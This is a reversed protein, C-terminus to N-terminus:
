PRHAQPAYARARDQRVREQIAAISTAAICVKCVIMTQKVAYNMQGPYLTMPSIDVDECPMCTNCATRGHCTNMFECVIDCGTCTNKLAFETTCADCRTTGKWGRCKACTRSCGICGHRRLAGTHFACSPCGDGGDAPLHPCEVFASHVQPGKCVVPPESWCTTCLMTGCSASVFGNPAVVNRHVMFPGHKVYAKEDVHDACSAEDVRKCGRCINKHNNCGEVSCMEFAERARASVGADVNADNKRPVAAPAGAAAMATKGGEKKTHVCPFRSATWPSFHARLKLM